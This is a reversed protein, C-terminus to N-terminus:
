TSLVGSIALGPSASTSHTKGNHSEGIKELVEVMRRVASRIKLLPLLSSCLKLHLL